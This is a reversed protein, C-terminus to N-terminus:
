RRHSKVHGSVMAGDCMLLDENAAPDAADSASVRLDAFYESSLTAYVNTGTATSVKPAHPGSAVLKKVSNPLRIAVNVPSGCEIANRLCLISTAKCLPLAADTRPVRLSSDGTPL